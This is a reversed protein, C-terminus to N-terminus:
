LKKVAVPSSRLAGFISCCEREETKVAAPTSMSAGISLSRMSEELADASTPLRTSLKPSLKPAVRPPEVDVVRLVATGELVKRVKEADWGKTSSSGPTSSSSGAFADWFASGMKQLLTHSALSALLAPNPATTSAKTPPSSPPTPYSSTSPKGSLLTSLPTSSSTKSTFYHPRLNSALGTLATPNAPVDATKKALQERQHHQMAMKSWLQMRYADITKMTFPNIDAFADFGAVGNNSSLPLNATPNMMPNMNEQMQPTRKAPSVPPKGSLIPSISYDPILTTHVPTIGGFTQSGGWFARSNMRPSTPLDKQTNLTVLPSSARVAPSIPSLPAPPPLMPSARGELMMKKLANVEQRLADNESKTSGLEQRIAEILHDREAIDGELTHIYEKRRVRFNRASIKNRLQRKEKSSMKAYEEPSPRWDDLEEDKDISSKRDKAGAGTKKEVGGSHVTGKRAKGKGGVKIPPIVLEDDDEANEDDDFESQDKSSAPTQPTGVLQPDIAFQFSPSSQLSAGSSSSPSSSKFAGLFDFPMSSMTALPDVKLYDDDLQFNFLSDPEVITPTPPFQSFSSHPSRPSSSSSSTGSSLLDMNFFDEFNSSFPMTTTSQASDAAM